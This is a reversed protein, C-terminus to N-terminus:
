QTSYITFNVIYSCTIGSPGTVIMAYTGSTPATFTFSSRFIRGLDEAIDGSSDQIYVTLGGLGGTITGEVRESQKLQMPISVSDGGSLQGSYVFPESPTWPKLSNLESQLAGIEQQALTLQARLGEIDQQSADLQTQSVTLAEKSKSLQSSLENLDGSKQWLFIGLIVIGITLVGILLFALNRNIQKAEKAGEEAEEEAETTLVDPSVKEIKGRALKDGIEASVDSLIQGTAGPETKDMVESIPENSPVPEVKGLETNDVAIVENSVIQEAPAPQVEGVVETKLESSPTKEATAAEQKDRVEIVSMSAPVQEAQVGDPLTEAERNQYEELTFQKKCESNVCRYISDHRNWFLSKQYCQPCVILGLQPNSPSESSSATQVELWAEKDSEDTVPIVEDLVAEPASLPSEVQEKKLSTKRQRSTNTQM